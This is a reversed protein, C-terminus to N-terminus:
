TAAVAAFQEVNDYVFQALLGANSEQLDEPIRQGNAIFAIPLKVRVAENIVVGPAMTEDIKTFILKHPNFHSYRDIARKLDAPRMSAPITLHIDVDPHSALVASLGSADDM